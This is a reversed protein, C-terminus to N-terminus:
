PVPPTDAPPASRGPVPAPYPTPFPVGAATLGRLIAERLARQLKLHAGPRTKVLLRITTGEPRISEVGLMEPASIVDPAFEDSTTLRDAAASVVASAQEVDATPAVTVDLVAVSWLQSQNGVRVIEGNPVHWVTGDAGRLVTTRLTIREVTGRAEGLDVTDGIGYQDEVLMFTGTICDKVLSQAGFGLAIGAIGASAVLPALNLGLEGVVLIFAVVWVAVTVTSALVTSISRARGERRPDRVPAVGTGPAVKTLARAAAEDALVARYVLRRVVRRGYRAVFWAVVVILLITLPRGILWDSLRALTENETAEWVAECIGGPEEGCADELPPPVTTALM